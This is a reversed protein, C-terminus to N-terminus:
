VKYKRVEMIIFGFAAVLIVASYLIPLKPYQDFYPILELGFAPSEEFGISSLSSGNDWTIVKVLDSIPTNDKFEIGSGDSGLPRGFVVTLVSNNLLGMSRVHHDSILSQQGAIWAWVVSSMNFSLAVGARSLSTNLERQVLIVVYTNNHVSMVNVEVGDKQEITVMRAGNWQPLSADPTLLLDRFEHQSVLWKEKEGEEHALAAIPLTFSLALLASILFVLITRNM